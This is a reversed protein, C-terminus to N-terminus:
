HAGSSITPPPPNGPFALAATWPLGLGVGGRRVQLESQDEEMMQQVNFQQESKYQVFQMMM